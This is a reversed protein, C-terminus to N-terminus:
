PYSMNFQSLPVYSEQNQAWGGTYIGFAHLKFSTFSIVLCTLIGTTQANMAEMFAIKNIGPVTIHTGIRFLLIIFITYLIKRRIDKVTFMNKLTDFM